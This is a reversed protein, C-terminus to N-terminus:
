IPASKRVEWILQRNLLVAGAAATTLLISGLVPVLTFLLVSAGLGLTHWRHRASFARQEERRMGRLSMPFGLYDRGLLYCDFYLSGCLGLLSGLV